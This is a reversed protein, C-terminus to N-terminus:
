VVFETHVLNYLEEGIAADIVLGLALVGDDPQKRHIAIGRLISNFVLGVPVLAHNAFIFEAYSLIIALKKSSDAM